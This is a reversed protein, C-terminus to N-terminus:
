RQELVALLTIFRAAARLSGYSRRDGNFDWCWVEYDPSWRLVRGPVETARDRLDTEDLVDADRRMIYGCRNYHREQSDIDSFPLPEYDPKPKTTTDQNSM